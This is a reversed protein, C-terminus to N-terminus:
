ISQTYTSFDDQRRLVFAYFTESDIPYGLVQVVDIASFSSQVHQAGTVHGVFSHQQFVHFPGPRNNYMGVSPIYVIIM